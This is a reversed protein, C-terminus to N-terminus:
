RPVGQHRGRRRGPERSLRGVLGFRSTPRPPAEVDPLLVVVSAGGFRSRGINVAGNVGAALRRAIDLGLGTSGKNSVGRQMAAEPDPIGPGGDDVRVAVWGDRRTVAVEIPTGQPTYRFVNGLIADLAAALDARSVPVPAPLTAGVRKCTRGQDGAVASWFVMRERVIESADCKAGVPLGDAGVKTIEGTNAPPQRASRILQDVEVELNNISRRVREGAPGTIPEADLRLATLPTRLRHSLDAVLEREAKILALVREAMSNFAQGAEMLELPGGPQVRVGLQGDNLSRAAQAFSKAAGVVKHALRDGVWVSAAVLGVALAFLTVWALAVGKNLEDAPVFVEVVANDGNPQRAPVLLVKGGDVDVTRTETGTAAEEVAATGARGTGVQVKDLRHVAVRGAADGSTNVVTSDITAQDPKVAIVAVVAAAMREADAVARDEALQQVVLGLPILFAIAVM